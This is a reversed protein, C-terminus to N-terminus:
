AVSIARAAIAQARSRPKGCTMASASSTLAADSRTSSFTPKARTAVRGPANPLMNRSRRAQLAVWSSSTPWSRASPTSGPPTSSTCVANEFTAGTSPPGRPSISASRAASPGSPVSTMGLM